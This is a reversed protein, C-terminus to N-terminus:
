RGHSRMQRAISELFREPKTSPDLPLGMKQSMQASLREAIRARTDLDMDLIRSFFHDILSLDEPALHAVSDAPLSAEDFQAFAPQPAPPAFAGATITRPGNGGWIPEDSPREHIVITSAALDGLRQHNRTCLLSIVGVFYAGPFMDIVRILNRTMSEFFTLQRGSEQIVRIKLLRKGPTQGNWFAEFLTFYGWYMLFNILIFGAILWKEGVHTFTGAATKPASVAILFFLLGLLLYAIFQTITDALIALFRSGLGAVPFRIDVQEPTDITLLDPTLQDPRAGLHSPLPNTLLDSM